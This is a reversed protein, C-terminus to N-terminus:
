TDEANDPPQLADLEDSLEDLRRLEARHKYRWTEGLAAFIDPCREGKEIKRATFISHAKISAGRPSACYLSWALARYEILPLPDGRELATRLATEAIAKPCGDFFEDLIEVAREPFVFASFDGENKTTTTTTKLEFSDSDSLIFSSSSSPPFASFDGEGLARPASNDLPASILPLHLQVGKTTLCWSEYRGMRAALMYVDCLLRMAATVSERKWDTMACIQDRGLPHPHALFLAGLCSLPAGKLARLLQVAAPDGYVSMSYSKM